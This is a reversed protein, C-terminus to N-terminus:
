ISVKGPWDKIQHHLLALRPKAQRKNQIKVGAAFLLM